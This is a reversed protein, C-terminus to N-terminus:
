GKQALGYGIEFARENQAQLEPRLRYKDAFHRALAATFAGRDLGPILAAMAGMIVMNFTRPSKVEENAIRVADIAHVEHGELASVDKVLFSNVIVKTEPALWAAIRGVSRQSLAVWLDAKGFKPYPIPRDGIQAFAMSVGGRKETSFFPMALAVKGQAHASRAIIEAASLAGQGGEGCIIIRFPEQSM